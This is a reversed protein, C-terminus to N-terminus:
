TSPAGACAISAGDSFTNLALNLALHELDPRSLEGLVPISTLMQSLDEYHVGDLSQLSSYLGKQLVKHSTAFSM